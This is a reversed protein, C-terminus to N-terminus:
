KIQNLVEVFVDVMSWKGMLEALMYLRTNEIKRHAAGRQVTILIYAIAIM